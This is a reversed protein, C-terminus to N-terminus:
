TLFNVNEAFAAAATTQVAFIINPDNYVFAVADEDGLTAQAAPWQNNYIMKGTADRYRCGAFVGCADLGSTATGVKIYGLSASMMVMDGTFIAAATEKVIAMEQTRITGGTLHRVPTFGNPEDTNAM